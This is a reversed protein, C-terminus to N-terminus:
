IPVEVQPISSTPILSRWEGFIEDILQAARKLHRVALVMEVKHEASITQEDVMKKITNQAYEILTNTLPLMDNNASDLMQWIDATMGVHCKSLLAHFAVVTEGAIWLANTGDNELGRLIESRKHLAESLESLREYDHSIRLATMAFALDSAVPRDLAVYRLCAERSLRCAESFKKIDREVPKKFNSVAIDLLEYSMDDLDTLTGNLENLRKQIM